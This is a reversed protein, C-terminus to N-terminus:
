SSYRSHAHPIDDRDRRNHASLILHVHFRMFIYIYISFCRVCLCVFIYECINRLRRTCLMFCVACLLHFHVLHRPTYILYSMEQVAYGVREAVYVTIAVVDNMHARERM